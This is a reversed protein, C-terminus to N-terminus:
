YRREQNITLSIYLIFVFLPYFIIIALDIYWPYNINVYDYTNFKKEKFWYQNINNDIIKLIWDINYANKINDIIDLKVSSKLDFNDWWLIDVNNIKDWNHYIVVIFDNSKWNKWLRKLKEYYNKDSTYRISISINYKNWKANLKELEEIEKLSVKEYWYIRKTRENKIKYYYKDNINLKTNNFITNSHILPNYYTKNWVIVDNIKFSNYTKKDVKKIIMNKFKDNYKGGFLSFVWYDDKPAFDCYWECTEKPQKVVKHHFLNFMSPKNIVREWITPFKRVIHTNKNGLKKKSKFIFWKEPSYDTETRYCTQCHRIWNEDKNCHCSYSEEYEYYYGDHHIKTIIYWSEIKVDKTYINNLFHFTLLLVGINIIIAFIGEVFTFEKTKKYMIFSIIFSIIAVLLLLM